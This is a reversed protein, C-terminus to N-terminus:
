QKRRTECQDWLAQAEPVAAFFEDKVARSFPELEKQLHFRKSVGESLRWADKALKERCEKTNMSLIGFCKKRYSKDGRSISFYRQAANRFERYLEERGASGCSEAQKFGMTRLAGRVEKAGKARMFRLGSMQYICLFNVCQWLLQDVRHKEDKPDTYRLSWLDRRLSNLKDDPTMKCGDSLLKERLEPDTETYYADWIETKQLDTQVTM